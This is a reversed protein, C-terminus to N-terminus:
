SEPYDLDQEVDSLLGKAEMHDLGWEVNSQLDKAERYYGYWYWVFLAMGQCQAYGNRPNYTVGSREAGTQCEVLLAEFMRRSLAGKGETIAETVERLFKIAGKNAEDVGAEHDPNEFKRKEERYSLLETLVLSVNRRNFRAM